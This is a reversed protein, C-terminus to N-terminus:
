VAPEAANEGLIWAIEEDSLPKDLIYVYTQPRLNKGNATYFMFGGSIYISDLERGQIFLNYRTLPTHLPEKTECVQVVRSRISQLGMLVRDTDEVDEFLVSKEAGGAYYHVAISQQKGPLAQKEIHQYLDPAKKSSAGCVIWVVCGALLLIGGISAALLRGKHIHQNM